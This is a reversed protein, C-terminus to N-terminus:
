ILNYITQIYPYIDVTWISTFHILHHLQDHARSDESIINKNIM